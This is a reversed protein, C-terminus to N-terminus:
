QYKIIMDVKSFICAGDLKAAFNQLHPLPYRNDESMANLARYDGSPKAVMHLPSAWASSFPRMIGIELLKNFEAKAVALKDHSLRCARALVPPRNRTEIRHKVNGQLRCKKSCPIAIEKFEELIDSCKNKRSWYM